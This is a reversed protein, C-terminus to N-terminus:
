WLSSKSIKRSITNASVVLILSVFTNILGAATALDYRADQLGMRYVLTSLVDATEYTAPQYLLLVTEFGVNIIQGVGMIFMIIITPMLCPLTIYKFQQWRNAGDVNAAEYFEPSITTLAATYIVSQLGAGKWINIFVYIAPFWNPKILFYIPELGFKVLITNIVGSTPALMNTLLGAIVVMSLFYPFIMFAQSTKKFFKNRIENLLLALIIPFPFGVLLSVTGLSFSNKFARLFNPQLLLEKFNDLGVFASGQVGKFVSFNQFAALLGYSPLYSFVIFFSIFPILMLYLYRDRQIAKIYYSTPPRYTKKNKM